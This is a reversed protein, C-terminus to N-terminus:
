PDQVFVTHWTDGVLRWRAWGSTIFVHGERHHFSLALRSWGWPEPPPPPVVHAPGGSAGGGSAGGGSAGGGAPGGSASGGSPGNDPTALTVGWSQTNANGYPVSRFSM